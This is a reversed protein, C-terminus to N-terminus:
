HRIVKVLMGFVPHDLYNLENSRMRRTQKLHLSILSPFSEGNGNDVIRINSLNSVPLTLWLNATLDIFNLRSVKITGNLQPGQIHVARSSRPGNIMQRWAIHLLVKYQGSRMLKKVEKNLTFDSDPLLNYMKQRSNSLQITNAFDPVMSAPYVSIPNSQNPNLQEFVVVEIQYPRNSAALVNFAVGLLLCILVIKILRQKIM